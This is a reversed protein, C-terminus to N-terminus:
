ATEDEVLRKYEAEADKYKPSGGKSVGWVEFIIKAKGYGKAQLQLIEELRESNDAIQTMKTPLSPVSLRNESILQMLLICEELEDQTFSFWEGIERREAFKQHLEKEARSPNQVYVHYIHRLRLPCGTQLEDIRHSVDVRTKGIKFKNTGVVTVLYVHGPQPLPIDVLSLASTNSSM